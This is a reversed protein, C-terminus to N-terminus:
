GWGELEWVFFYISGGETTKGPTSIRGNGGWVVVHQIGVGFLEWPKGQGEERKTLKTATAQHFAENKRKKEEKVTKRLKCGGKVVGEIIASKKVGNVGKRRLASSRVTSGDGLDRTRPRDEEGREASGWIQEGKRKTEPFQRGSERPTRLPSQGGRIGRRECELKPDV